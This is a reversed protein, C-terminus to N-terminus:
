QFSGKYVPPLRFMNAALLFSAKNETFDILCEYNNNGKLRLILIFENNTGADMEIHSLVINNLSKNTALKQVVKLDDVLDPSYGLNVCKSHSLQFEKFSESRKRFSQLIENLEDFIRFNFKETFDVM